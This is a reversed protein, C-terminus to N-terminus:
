RSSSGRRRCDDDDDVAEGAIFLMDWADNLRPRTLSNYTYLCVPISSLCLPDDQRDSGITELSVQLVCYFSMESRSALISECGDDEERSVVSNAIHDIYESYNGWDAVILCAAILTPKVVLLM